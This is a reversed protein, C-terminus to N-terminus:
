LSHTSPVPTYFEGQRGVRRTDVWTRACRRRPGSPRPPSGRRELARRVRPDSLRSVLSALACSLTEHAFVCFIRKVLTYGCKWSEDVRSSFLFRFSCCTRCSKFKCWTLSCSKFKCWTATCAARCSMPRAARLCLGHVLRLQACPITGPPLGGLEM